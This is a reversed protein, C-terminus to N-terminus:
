RTTVMVGALDKIDTAIRDWNSSVALAADNPAHGGNSKDWSFGKIGLEYSWEAQYTRVINEDGNLTSLNDTFDAQQDIRVAGPTLGLGIYLDTSADIFLGPSDSIVMPRGFPDTKVNVTGFNFLLASNTIAAGFIDFLPKSHMVWCVIDTYRDGFKAQGSNFTAINAVAASGDYNVAAVGSLAAACAMLATNLMDALTDIALQQGIVAGGEEPNRQIWKFMSPDIRIPPTGAAVKVMTDVLQELVKEAVAGSGYPNRRRVLGAVKAWMARDSYDGVHAKTDLIIAGGTAANFLDIQQRLVETQASYVFESFVALDSLAM